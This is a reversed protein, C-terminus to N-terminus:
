FSSPLIEKAELITCRGKQNNERDEIEMIVGCKKCRM